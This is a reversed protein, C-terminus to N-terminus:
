YTRPDPHMTGNLINFISALRGVCLTVHPARSVAPFSVLTCSRPPLLPSLSIEPQPRSLSPTGTTTNSSITKPIDTRPVPYHFQTPSYILIAEPCSIVMTSSILRFGLSDFTCGGESFLLSRPMHRRPHM